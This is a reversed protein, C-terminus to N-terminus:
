FVQPMIRVFCLFFNRLDQVTFTFDIASIFFTNGFNWSPSDDFQGLIIM